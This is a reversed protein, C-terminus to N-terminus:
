RPRMMLALRVIASSISSRRLRERTVLDSIRMSFVSRLAIASVIRAVCARVSGARATSYTTSGPATARQSGRRSRM